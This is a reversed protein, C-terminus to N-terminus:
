ALFGLNAISDYPTSRVIERHSSCISPHSVALVSGHAVMSLFIVGVQMSKMTTYLCTRRGDSQVSSRLMTEM